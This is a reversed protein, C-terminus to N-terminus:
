LELLLTNITAHEALYFFFVHAYADMHVSDRPPTAGRDRDPHEQGTDLNDDSSSAGDESRTQNNWVGRRIGIESSPRSDQRLIIGGGSGLPDM